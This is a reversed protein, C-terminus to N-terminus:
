RKSGGHVHPLVTSVAGCYQGELWGISNPTGVKFHRWGGDFQFWSRPHCSGSDRAGFPDFTRRYGYIQQLVALRADFADPDFQIKAMKRMKLYAQYRTRPSQALM